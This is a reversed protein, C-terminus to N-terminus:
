RLPSADIGQDFPDPVRSEIKVPAPPAAPDSFSGKHSGDFPRFGGRNPPNPSVRNTPNPIFPPAEPHPAADFIPDESPNARLRAAHLMRQATAAAATGPYLESLEVLSQQLAELKRAAELEAVSREASRAEEALQAENLLELKRSYLKLLRERQATAPDTVSQDIPPASLNLDPIPASAPLVQDRPPIDQAIVSLPVATWMRGAIAVGIVLLGCALRSRVKSM